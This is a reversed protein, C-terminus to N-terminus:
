KGVRGGEIHWIIATIFCVSHPNRRGYEHNACAVKYTYFGPERLEFTATGERDEFPLSGNLLVLANEPSRRISVYKRIISQPSLDDTNSNSEKKIEYYKVGARKIRTEIRPLVAGNKDYVNITGNMDLSDPLLYVTYVYQSEWPDEKECIMKVVGKEKEDIILEAKSVFQVMSLQSINNSVIKKVEPPILSLKLNQDEKYVEGCSLYYDPINTIEIDYGMGSEIVCVYRGYDVGKIKITFTRKGHWEGYESRLRAHVIYMYKDDEFRNSPQKDIIDLKPTNSQIELDNRESIFRIEAEDDPIEPIRVTDTVVFRVQGSVTIPLGVGFVLLVVFFSYFLKM